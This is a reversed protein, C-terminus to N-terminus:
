KNEMKLKLYECYKKAYEGALDWEYHDGDEPNELYEYKIIQIICLCDLKDKRNPLSRIITDLAEHTGCSWILNALIKQRTDLGEIQVM